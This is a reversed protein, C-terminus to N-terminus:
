KEMAFVLLEPTITSLRYKPRNPYSALVKDIAAKCALEVWPYKGNSQIKGGTAAKRLAVKKIDPSILISCRTWGSLSKSAEPGIHLKKGVSLLNGDSRAVSGGFEAWSSLDISPLDTPEDIRPTPEDIGLFHRDQYNLGDADEAPDTNQTVIQEPESDAETPDVTIKKLQGAPTAMHRNVDPPIRTSDITPSHSDLYSGPMEEDAMWEVLGRKTVIGVSKKLESWMGPGAFFLERITDDKCGYRRLRDYIRSTFQEPRQRIVVWEPPGDSTTRRWPLPLKSNLAQEISIKEM